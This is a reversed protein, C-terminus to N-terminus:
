STAPASRRSPTCVTSVESNGMSLHGRGLALALIRLAFADVDPAADHRQFDQQILGAAGDGDLHALAGHLAVRRNRDFAGFEM